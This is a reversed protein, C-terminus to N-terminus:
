IENFTGIGLKFGDAWHGINSTTYQAKNMM